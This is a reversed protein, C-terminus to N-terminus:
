LLTVTTLLLPWLVFELDALTHATTELENDSALKAKNIYFYSYFLFLLLFIAHINIMNFYIGFILPFFAIVNMVHLVNITAKKGLIVPLTKLGLSKDNDIDKLDFFIVNNMVRMFIFLFAIIFSLNINMSYYFLPFFTGVLAWTTATFMNKFAPIKRTLDKLVLNYLIGGTMIAVIFAVLGMNSYLILLSILLLSYFGFVYPYRDAKKKLFVARESNNKIDEDIDKYYDYSYVILPLLYSILLMPLSIKINLILSTAIIFCPSCLAALYGGYIIENKLSNLLKLEITKANANLNTIIEEKINNEVENLTNLHIKSILLNYSRRIM